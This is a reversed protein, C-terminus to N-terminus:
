TILSRGAEAKLSRRVMTPLQPECENENTIPKPGIGDDLVVTQPVNNCVIATYFIRVRCVFRNTACLNVKNM